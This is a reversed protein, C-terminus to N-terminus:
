QLPIHVTLVVSSIRQFKELRKLWKVSVSLKTEHTHVNHELEKRTQCALDKGEMCM